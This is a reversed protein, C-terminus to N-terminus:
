KAIYPVATVPLSHFIEEVTEKSFAVCSGFPKHIEGFMKARIRTNSIGVSVPIGIDHLICHKLEEALSAYGGAIDTVDAFLEDISFIEVKGLKAELYKSFRTSVERYWTHDPIKKVIKGRLIREAEWM